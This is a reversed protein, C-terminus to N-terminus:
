WKEPSTTIIKRYLAHLDAAQEEVSRLRQAPSSTIPRARHRDPDADIKSLIQALGHPTGVDIVYGNHGEDIDEGMAGRDSAIVWLGAAVAERSVLGYSEPWISPALLIDLRAYLQSVRDQPYPATLTVLTMGWVTDLEEGPALSGDVMTLHLNAYAGRRLVAEVLMAGKHASRGGIHGLRIRGDVPPLPDTRPMLPVGNEVVHIDKVGADAYIKLFPGSVSLRAHARHLLSSLRLRRNMAVLPDRAKACDALVDTGPLQLLGDGDVLFQNDSIWWADHLTVIYPIGHELAVEVITGSLRQICHFHIIDPRFHKIVREFPLAHSDIFSTWDIRACHDTALRYVAIGKEGDMRLRGPLEAAEDSCFIAVDLDSYRDAFLRVNDEVVRTAGGYSQPAYFVNCILVRVRDQRAIHEAPKRIQFASRLQDAGVTLDYDRLAKARAQKGIRARLLPQTVLCEMGDRWEAITDAFLGDVGEEIVERYTRTGSVISPIQLIAAELWKIESKCDAVMGPELVALNIDCSALISWYSAVDAIFPYVIIREGLASLEPGTQLYGVIVLDLQPYCLMLDVLAPAVLRNFDANHAKTGSGYFLRVRGGEARIPAAGMRIAARNRIDLGNRLVIGTATKSVAQMKELLAPTSAIVAGCMSLAYRFLPVGFQLGAYEMATIQDEFSSFPDPYHASNFILDDIEYWCDLGISRAHLIARLIAPVAGVRYFIVARAGILSDLFGDVDHHSFIRVPIGAQEFQLAKQEVRYYTCQRLDDNALISIHGDPDGAMAVPLADLELYLARIEDLAATLIEDAAQRKAPDRCAGIAQYLDHARASHHDFYIQVIHQLTRGFAAKQRGERHAERLLAFAEPFEHRSAHITAAQLFAELPARDGKTSALYADLADETAGLAGLVDGLLYLLGPMPDIAVARTLIAKAKVLDGATHAKQGIRGLLWAADKKMLDINDVIKGTSADFLAALIQSRTAGRKIGIRRGLTQWDLASPFPAKGLYPSLFIRENPAIGAPFGRALWIRYLDADSKGKHGFLLRNHRVFAPDFIYDLNIPWLRDMGQAVFAEIAEERTSPVPDVEDGCWALFESASFISKWKETDALIESFQAEEAFRCRRGEKHGHHLYHRFFEEEAGFRNVLDKNYHKYALYDFEPYNKRANALYSIENIFRNEKKGFRIYHILAQKKGKIHILDDYHSLYFRADFGKAKISVIIKYIIKNYLKM